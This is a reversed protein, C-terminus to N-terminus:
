VIYNQMLNEIFKDQIEPSKMDLQSFDSYLEPMMGAILITSFLQAAAIKGQEGNQKLIDQILKYFRHMFDTFMKMSDTEYNNYNFVSSFHAKTLNPYNIAGKLTETLFLKLAKRTETKWLESYDNINNVFSEQLSAQMVIQLLQEKSGFHYNVAAVNVGARAAIKRITVNQFGESEICEIATIVIKQKIEESSM